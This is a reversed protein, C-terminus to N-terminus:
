NHTHNKDLLRVFHWNTFHAIAITFGGLPVFITELNDNGNFRGLAILGFGVLLLFIPIKKLHNFYNVGLSLSGLFLSVIIMIVEVWKNALFGIGWLPLTNLLLPVLICHIACLTSAFMGMGDLQQTIKQIKM